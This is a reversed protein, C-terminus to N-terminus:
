PHALWCNNGTNRWQALHYACMRHRYVRSTCPLGTSKMKRTCRKFPAKNETKGEKILSTVEHPNTVGALRVVNPILPSTKTDACSLWDWVKSVVSEKAKSTLPNGWCGPFTCEVLPLSSDVTPSSNDVAFDSAEYTSHIGCKIPEGDDPFEETHSSCSSM